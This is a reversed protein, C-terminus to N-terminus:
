RLLQVSDDASNALLKNATLRTGDSIQHQQLAHRCNLGQRVPSPMSLGMGM